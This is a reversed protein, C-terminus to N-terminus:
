KVLAGSLKLVNRWESQKNKIFKKLKEPNEYRISLVEGCDLCVTFTKEFDPVQVFSNGKCKTCSM